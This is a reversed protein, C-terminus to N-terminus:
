APQGDRSLAAQLYITIPGLLRQEWVFWVLSLGAVTAPFWTELRLYHELNIPIFFYTFAGVAAIGLAGSAFAALVWSERWTDAFQPLALRPEGFFVLTPGLVVLLEVLALLADPVLFRRGYRLM